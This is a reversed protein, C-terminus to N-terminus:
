GNVIGAERDKEMLEEWTVGLPKSYITHQEGTATTTYVVYGRVWVVEYASSPTNSYTTTTRKNTSTSARNVVASSGLVMLEEANDQTITNGFAVLAGLANLTDTSVVDRMVNVLVRPDDEVGDACAGMIECASLRTVPTGNPIYQIYVTIDHSAMMGFNTQYGIPQLGEKDRSWYAVTYGEYGTDPKKLAKIKNRSTAVTFTTDDINNGVTITLPINVDEYLGRIEKYAASGDISNIVDQVTCVTTGDLTWGLTKAAIKFPLMPLSYKSANDEASWTGAGVVQSYESMFEIYARPPNQTALSEDYAVPVVLGDGAITYDVSVEGNGLVNGTPNLWHLFKKGGTYELAVTTNLEHNARYYGNQRVGNVVYDDGNIFLKATTKTSASGGEGTYTGKVGFIEVNRKINAAILDADGTVIVKSLATNGRDPTVIQEEASPTVEKEQLVMNDPVAKGELKTRLQALMDAQEDIVANAAGVQAAMADLGLKETGGNLTRVEDAIATMKSNVSM